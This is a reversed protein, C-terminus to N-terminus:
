KLVMGPLSFVNDHLMIAAVNLNPIPSRQFPSHNLIRNKLPLHVGAGQLYYVWLIVMWGMICSPITDNPGLPLELGNQDSPFKQIGVLETQSVADKAWEM